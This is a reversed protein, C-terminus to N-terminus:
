PYFYNLADRALALYFGRGIAFPFSTEGDVAIRYGEGRVAFGTFDVVHVNLQATPDVGAPQTMGAAVEEGGIDLLRWPLPEQAQTILTARKPGDPLYGLQNVVIRPRAATEEIGY